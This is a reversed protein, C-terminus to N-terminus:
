GTVSGLHVTISRNRGQTTVDVTVDSNPPHARTAAIASVSDDIRQDGILTILDGARIGAQDAPGGAVVSKVVAGTASTPGTNSADGGVVVGLVAHTAKGTAILEKAIRSAEDSPIAFGIGINGSQMNSAATSAIASNVGVVHGSLDVLPGGSNGPNIAADTQIADFIAAHDQDGTAVPRDLASVIGSTV